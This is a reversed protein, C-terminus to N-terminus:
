CQKKVKIEVTITTITNVHNGQQKPTDLPEQDTRLVFQGQFPPSNTRAIAPLQVAFSRFVQSVHLDFSFSAINMM